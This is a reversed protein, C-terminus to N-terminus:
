QAQLYKRRFDEISMGDDVEAEKLAAEAEADNFIPSFYNQMAGITIQNRGRERATLGVRAEAWPREMHTQDVLWRSGHAGYFRLAMAISAKEDDSLHPPHGGVTTM